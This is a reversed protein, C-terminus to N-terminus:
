FQRTARARFTRCRPSAQDDHRTKCSGNGIGLQLRRKRSHCSAICFFNSSNKKQKCNKKHRGSYPIAKCDFYYKSCHAAIIKIGFTARMRGLGVKKSLLPTVLLTQHSFKRCRGNFHLEYRVDVSVEHFKRRRDARNSSLLAM